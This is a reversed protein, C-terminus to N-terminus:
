FRFYPIVSATSCGLPVTVNRNESM